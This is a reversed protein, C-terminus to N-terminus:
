RAVAAGGMADIELLRDSLVTIYTMYNAPSALSSTFAVNVVGVPSGAFALSENTRLCSQGVVFHRDNYLDIAGFKGSYDSSSADFMRTFAKNTEAYVISKSSVSNMGVNSIKRGDLSLDFNQLLMNKSEGEQKQDSLDSSERSSLLVGKLSSCNIGVNVSNSQALTQASVAIDTYPVTFKLNKAVMTAKINDNFAPSTMIKDSVFRLNSFVVGTVTQTGSAYFMEALSAWTISIQLNGNILHAPLTNSLLGFLPLVCNITSSTAAVNLPRMFHMLQYGDNELWDRSTAHCFIADAVPAYTSAPIQDVQVNNITTRYSSIAAACGIGNKFSIDTNSNDSFTLQMDFAIYNNSYYGSQLPIILESTGGPASNGSMSPIVVTQLTSDVMKPNRYSLFSEPASEQLYPQVYPSHFNSSQLSM